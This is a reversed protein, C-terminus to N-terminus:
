LFITEPMLRTSTITKKGLLFEPKFLLIYFHQDTIYFFLNKSDSHSEKDEVDTKGERWGEGKQEEEEWGVSM